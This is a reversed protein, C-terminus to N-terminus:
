RFRTPVLDMAEEVESLYRAGYAGPNAQALQWGVYFSRTLAACQRASLEDTIRQWDLGLNVGRSASKVTQSLNDRLDYFGPATYLGEAFRAAKWQGLESGIEIKADVGALHVADQSFC